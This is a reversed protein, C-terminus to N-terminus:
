GKHKMRILSVALEWACLQQLERGARIANPIPGLEIAPPGITFV